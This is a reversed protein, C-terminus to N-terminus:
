LKIKNLENQYVRSAEKEDTFYGLHKQKGNVTITSQWKNTIKHICVGTYKSTGKRDKSVNQRQTILQLNYLKDNSRNNDIHDVVIKLGSSKHNLFAIAVLVYVNYNKVNGQKYLIVNLRGSSNVGPSLNKVGGTRKYNLSRINGLNSAQYLGKYEPIDKWVEIGLRSKLKAIM